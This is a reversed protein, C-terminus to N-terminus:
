IYMSLIGNVLWVSLCIFPLCVFGVALLLKIVGFRTNGMDGQHEPFPVSGGNPHKFHPHKGGDVRVGGQKTVAREFQRVTRCSEVSYKNRGKM